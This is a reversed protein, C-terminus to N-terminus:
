PFTALRSRADALQQQAQAVQKEAAKVADMNPKNIINNVLDESSAIMANAIREADAPSFARVEATALGTMPDFRASTMRGWYRTLYEDKRRPNFRSLLDISPKTYLSEINIRRELDDLAQRSQLYDVVVYNQASAMSAGAAGVM